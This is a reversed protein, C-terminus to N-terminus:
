ECPSIDRYRNKPVNEPQRACSMTMGPKKRYLQQVVILILHMEELEKEYLHVFNNVM